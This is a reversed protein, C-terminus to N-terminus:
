VCVGDCCSFEGVIGNQGNTITYSNEPSTTPGTHATYVYHVDGEVYMYQEFFLAVGRLTPILEDILVAYWQSTLPKRLLHEWLHLAM